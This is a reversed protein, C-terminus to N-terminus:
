GGADVLTVDAPIGPKLELAPDGSIRVKVPYVLRTREEPTQVNRPTFEAQSGIFVVEGDYVRDPYSDASIRAAQGISVRGIRDEPVYIRVWRDTPDLVTLVPAGAGVTEGVQRHRVTVIGDFPARVVGNSLAVEVRTLDARAQEMAAEQARITEPRAGERLLALQEEAQTRSAEAVDLATEARDLAQRSVAGGEFLTTARIAEAAAEQARRRAARVAAEAGAIEQTRAGSRLEALRAESAAVRARAAGVTAELERTDLTALPQDTSVRDGERVALEAIRGPTQFGLDADTAEVTGSAVLGGAEAGSRTMLWAVLAGVALVAVAIRIRKIM